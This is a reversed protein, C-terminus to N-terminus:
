ITLAIEGEGEEAFCGDDDTHNEYVPVWDGAVDIAWEDEAFGTPNAVLDDNCTIDAPMPATYARAEHAEACGSLTYETTFQVEGDDDGCLTRVAIFQGYGDHEVVVIGPADATYLAVVDESVTVTAIIGQGYSCGALIAATIVATFLAFSPIYRTM